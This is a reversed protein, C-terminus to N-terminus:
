LDVQAFEFVKWPLDEEIKRKWSKTVQWFHWIMSTSVLLCPFICKQVLTGILLLMLQDWTLKKPQNECFEEWFL